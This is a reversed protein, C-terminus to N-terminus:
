KNFFLLTIYIRKIIKYIPTKEENEKKKWLTFNFLYNGYGFSNTVEAEEVTYKATILKACKTASQVYACFGAHPGDDFKGCMITDMSKLVGSFTVDDTFRGATIIKGMKFKPINVTSGLLKTAINTVKVLGVNTSIKVLTTAAYNTWADYGLGSFLDWAPAFDGGLGYGCKLCTKEVKEAVSKKKQLRLYDVSRHTHKNTIVFITTINKTM